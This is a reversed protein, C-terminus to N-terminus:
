YPTKLTALAVGVAMLNLAGSFSRIGFSLSGSKQCRSEKREDLVFAFLSLPLLTARSLLERVFSLCVGIFAVDSLFRNSGVRNNKSKYLFLFTM